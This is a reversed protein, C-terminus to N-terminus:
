ESFIGASHVALAEIERPGPMSEPLADIDGVGSQGTMVRLVRYQGAPLGRTSLHVARVRDYARSMGRGFMSVATRADTVGAMDAMMGCLVEIRRSGSIDIEQAMPFTLRARATWARGMRRRM